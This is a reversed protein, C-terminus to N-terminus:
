NPSFCLRMSSGIQGLVKWCQIEIKKKVSFLQITLFLNLMRSLKKLCALSDHRLSLPSQLKKFTLDFHSGVTQNKLVM